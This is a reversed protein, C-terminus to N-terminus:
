PANGNYTEVVPTAYTLTTNAGAATDFPYRPDSVGALFQNTYAYQYQIRLTINRTGTTFATGANASFTLILDQVTSQVPYPTVAFSDIATAEGDVGAFNKKGTTNTQLVTAAALFCADSATIGLRGALAASANSDFQDLSLQFQKVYVNEGLKGFYIVDGSVPNVGAPFSYTMTAGEEDNQGDPRFRANDLYTKTKYSAM